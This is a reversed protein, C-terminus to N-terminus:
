YWIVEKRHELEKMRKTVEDVKKEYEANLLQFTKLLETAKEIEKKLKQNEADHKNKEITLKLIWRNFNFYIKYLFSIKIIVKTIQLKELLSHWVPMRHIDLPHPPLPSPLNLPPHPSRLSVRFQNKVCQVSNSFYVLGAQPNSLLAFNNDVVLRVGHRTSYASICKRFTNM